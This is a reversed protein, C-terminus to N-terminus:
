CGHLQIIYNTEILAVFDSPKFHISSCPNEAGSDHCPGDSLNSFQLIHIRYDKQQEAM